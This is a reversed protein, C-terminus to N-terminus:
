AYTSSPSASEKPLIRSLGLESLETESLSSSPDAHENTISRAKGYDSEYLSVCAIHRNKLKDLTKKVAIRIANFDLVLFDRSEEYGHSLWNHARIVIINPSGPQLQGGVSKDQLVRDIHALFSRMELESSSSPHQKRDQIQVGAVGDSAGFYVIPCGQAMSPRIRKAWNAIEEDSLQQWM